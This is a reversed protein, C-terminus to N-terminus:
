PAGQEGAAIVEPAVRKAEAPADSSAKYPHSDM